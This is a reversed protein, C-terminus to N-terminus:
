IYQGERAAADLMHRVADALETPTYPKGLFTVRDDAADHDAALYGSAFVVRVAPDFRRIAEFAQRGSMVPMSADLVVVGVKGAERRVAAVAEAGNAATLVRYGLGDLTMRALERIGPEDDAILVTEGGRSETPPVAEPRPEAPTAAEPGCPLYVDFRTGKGPASACAVTGGHARAMGYVVALGLGTGKGPEKTTFFPEFIRGRVDEAMGVGTDSVSLRVYAGPELETPLPAAPATELCLTGGDPMADRANLCLNMVVQQVQVPDATVAPLGAAPRFEVAIRPDITRRLLGLEDAVLGNLDVPAPRMPQRRAFGLLQRTLDAAQRTAREAAALCEDRDAGAAAGSRVVELNGLVVTLLNNFDHAVGGALQGVADMKQAQRLQDELRDRETVDRFNIVVARVSPDDLRNSADTQIVQTSGDAKLGRCTWPVAEGPRAAVDALVEAAVGRDDPHILDFGPKGVLAAPDYGTIARVAPSAYKITGRGDLLLIGDHSKEVLARFRQESQRLAEEAHRQATVDVLCGDLRAPRGAEDRVVQLRDRVWRVSGDPAAVRYLQEVETEGGTLLRRLATRYGDRDAAHLMEAWRFPHDLADAVRGALRALLPSVYRFQWNAFVDPGPPREASWLAAPSSSLVKRLEGEVRRAQTFAARRDRDDRAIILGLPRPKVHLRSVTLNVPIWVGDERTRLLYGDQNHFHITKTFAGRLRQLGGTPEFRFLYTAPVRLLEAHTFGTLRLAVPNVEVLRDTDPELLFLADGLEDFLARALEAQDSPTM